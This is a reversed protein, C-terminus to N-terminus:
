AEKMLERLRAIERRHQDVQEGKVTDWEAALLAIEEERAAIAGAYDGQLECVMAISTTGDTYRPPPQIELSKRYYEKAREYQGAKVMVDGMSLWVCWEEPWDRCMQEWVDMAEKHEGAAWAILGRYLPTRFSDDVKEMRGLYERAEDLRQDDILQDLLWMIGGRDEPNKDLYAKYWDILKGHNTFDWDALRGGMAIVLESHADKNEPTRELAEKAYEAARARHEDALHNEMQALLEYVKGNGPERCGKDLLFARESEVAAPDLEREDWLMNQIRELRNEDSLSFLQDISVGFYASLAPLLQIDPQATGREWKSVAQASVNLKDALTEQTVGRQLRLQKIQAGIEM